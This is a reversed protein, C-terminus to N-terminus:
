YIRGTEASDNALTKTGIIAALTKELMEIAPFKKQLLSLRGNKNIDQSHAGPTFVLFSCM